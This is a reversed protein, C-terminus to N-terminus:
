EVQQAQDGRDTRGELEAPHQESCDGRGQASTSVRVCPLRVELWPKRTGPQLILTRGTNEKEERINPCHNIADAELCWPLFFPHVSALTSYMKLGVVFSDELFSAIQFHPANLFSISLMHYEAAISCICIKWALSPLYLYLWRGLTACVVSASRLNM